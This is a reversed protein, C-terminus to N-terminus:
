DCAFLRYEIFVAGDSNDEVSLDIVVALESGIQLFFTVGKAARRVGLHKRM